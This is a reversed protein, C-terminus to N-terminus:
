LNRWRRGVGILADAAAPGPSGAKYTDLRPEGSESWTERIPEIISWQAFTEDNRTFLTADGRMADLILREYAEPSDSLFSTGYLFEMNVPRIRMRPGPIKAGLSVSVGEIPQVSMVLENPQVGVSGGSAFALYPVSKLQVVIETVKRALRKGTRLFIPVGAWRWNDVELRLAAYTETTSDDPVGPEDLYGPVPEGAVVGATYQARVTDRAVEAPTPPTIAQLVKVKEDRVKDAEFRAPPEMCVLALLQLMHNEVLDRLAGARDYYDARSGVGIDEAATIEIHDIYNRNWVPEFLYNAFRFAMVNQVTEKGLYHDIRFVQYEAFVSSVTEQLAQASALDSGFPKEIIVRVECHEHRNLGADGLREVIVGFYEPATSLYYVRNLPRGAESDLKDILRGLEVYGTADDFSFGVYRLRSLLGDLLPEDPVRRSFEVIAERAFDRFGNDSKAGRAVGILYFWEPLVGEHALNYLAPLLKRRALDGTAGFITLTTNPIPLRELGEVLPNERVATTTATV